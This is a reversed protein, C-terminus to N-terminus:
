NKFAYEFGDLKVYDKFLPMLDIDDKSAAISWCDLKKKTKADRKAGHELLFKITDYQSSLTAYHLPTAEAEDQANIDLNNNNNLLKIGSLFGEYSALHLFTIKNNTKVNCNVNYKILLKLIEINGNMAVLHLPSLGKKNKANVYAGKKLLFEIKELDQSIVAFHLTTNGEKDELNINNKNILNELEKGKKSLIAIHINNNAKIENIDEELNCLKRELNEIGWILFKNGYTMLSDYQFGNKHKSLNHLRENHKLQNKTNEEVKEIDINFKIKDEPKSSNICSLFVLLLLKMISKLQKKM